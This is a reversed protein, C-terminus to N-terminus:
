KIAKRQAQLIVREREGIREGEYNLFFGRFLITGRGKKPTYGLIILYKELSNRMTVRKITQSIREIFEKEDGESIYFIGIKNFAKIDVLHRIEEKILTDIDSVQNEHEVALVIDETLHKEPDSRWIYDVRMYDREEVYPVAQKRNLESFFGFVTETWFRSSDGWKIRGDLYDCFKEFVEELVVM